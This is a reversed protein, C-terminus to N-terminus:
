DRNKPNKRNKEKLDSMWILISCFMKTFCLIFNSNYKLIRIM